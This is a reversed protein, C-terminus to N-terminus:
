GISIIFYSSGQLPSYIPTHHRIVAIIQRHTNPQQSINLDLTDILQVVNYDTNPSYQLYEAVM